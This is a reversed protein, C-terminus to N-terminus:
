QERYTRLLATLLPTDPGVKQQSRIVIGQRNVWFSNKNTFELEPISWTEFIRVVPIIQDGLQVTDDGGVSFRSTAILGRAGPSLSVKWYYTQLWDLQHLGALFPNEALAAVELVDTSFGRSRVLRGNLFDLRARDQSYFSLIFTESDVGGLVMSIPLRDGIQVELIGVGASEIQSASFTNQNRDNIVTKVARVVSSSGTSLCGVLVGCGVCILLFRFGFFFGAPVPNKQVAV